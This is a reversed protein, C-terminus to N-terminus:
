QRLANLLAELQGLFRPSEVAEPAIGTLQLADLDDPPLPGGAADRVVELGTQRDPVIRFAGRPGHVLQCRRDGLRNLFVVLQTGDPFRPTDSVTMALDGVEGGPLRLLLEDPAPDDAPSKLARTVRLRVTTWIMRLGQVRGLEATQGAVTGIVLYDSALVREPLTWHESVAGADPAGHVVAIAACLAWVPRSRRTM